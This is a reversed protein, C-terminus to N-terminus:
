VHLFLSCLICHLSKMGDSIYINMERLVAEATGAVPYRTIFHTQLCLRLILQCVFSCLWVEIKWPTIIENREARACQLIVNMFDHTFILRSVSLCACTCKWCISYRNFSPRTLGFGNRVYGAPQYIIRCINNCLSINDESIWIELRDPKKLKSLSM